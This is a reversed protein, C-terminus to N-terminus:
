EAVGGQRGPAGDREFGQASWVEGERESEGNGYYTSPYSEYTDYYRRPNWKRVTVRCLWEPPVADLNFGEYPEMVLDLTRVPFRAGDVIADAHFDPRDDFVRGVM